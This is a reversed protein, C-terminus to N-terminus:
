ITGLSVGPMEAQVRKLISEASLHEGTDLARLVAARQKTLRYRSQLRGADVTKLDVM